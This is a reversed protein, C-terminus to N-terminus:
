DIDIFIEEDDSEDINTETNEEDVDSDTVEFPNYNVIDDNNSINVQDKLLSAGESCPQGSKFCHIINGESGDNKM